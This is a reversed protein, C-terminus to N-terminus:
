ETSATDAFHEPHKVKLLKMQYDRCKQTENRLQNQLQQITRRSEDYYLKSGSKFQKDVERSLSRIMSNKLIQEDIKLQQKRARKVIKLPYNVNSDAVLVGIGNPIEDKVEEYLSQPMVFYNYNGVFSLTAKSHFDSKSIKVEYCRFVDKCDYTMYDVRQNGYWGITVELCGFVGRKITDQWLRNELQKTLDTKGM